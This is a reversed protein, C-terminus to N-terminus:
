TCSRHSSALQFWSPHLFALVKCSWPDCGQRRLQPLVRPGRVVSKWRAGLSQLAAGHLPLRLFAASFLFERSIDLKSPPLIVLHPKWLNDHEKTRSENGKQEEKSGELSLTLNHHGWPWAVGMLHKASTLSHCHIYAQSNRFVWRDLIPIWATWCRHYSSWGCNSIYSSDFLHLVCKIFMKYVNSMKSVWLDEGWFEPIGQSCSFHRLQTVWSWSGELPFSGDSSWTPNGRRFACLCKSLMVMVAQHKLWDCGLFAFFPVRQYLLIAISFQWKYYGISM